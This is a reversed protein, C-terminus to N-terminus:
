LMLNLGLYGKNTKAIRNLYTALDKRTRLGLDSLEELTLVRIVKTDVNPCDRELRLYFPMVENDQLAIAQFYARDWQVQHYDVDSPLERPNQEGSEFCVASIDYPPNVLNVSNNQQPDVCSPIGITIISGLM